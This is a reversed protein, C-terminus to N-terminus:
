DPQVQEPQRGGPPSGQPAGQPAVGSVVKYRKGCRANGVSYGRKAMVFWVGAAAGRWDIEALQELRAPLM